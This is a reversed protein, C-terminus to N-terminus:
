DKICFHPYERADKHHPVTRRRRSTIELGNNSWRRRYPVSSVSGLALFSCLIVCWPLHRQRSNRMSFTQDVPLTHGTPCPSRSIPFAFSYSYAKDDTNPLLSRYSEIIFTTMSASFFVLFILIADM